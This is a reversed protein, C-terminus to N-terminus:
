FYASYTCTGTADCRQSQGRTTAVNCMCSAHRNIFECTYYGGNIVNTWECQRCKETGQTKCELIVSPGGGGSPSDSLFVDEGCGSGDASCGWDDNWEVQSQAKSEQACILMLLLPLVFMM